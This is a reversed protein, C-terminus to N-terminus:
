KHNVSNFCDFINNCEVQKLSTNDETSSTMSLFKDNHMQEIAYKLEEYNVPKRGSALEFEKEQLTRAYNEDSYPQIIKNIKDLLDIISNVVNIVSVILELISNETNGGAVQSHYSKSM